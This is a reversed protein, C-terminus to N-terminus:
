TKIAPHELVRWEQLYRKPRALSRHSAAPAQILCLDAHLALPLIQISGDVLCAVRNIKQQGGLAVHCGGHTEKFLGHTVIGDWFFDRHILATGVFRGNVRDDLVLFYGDDDPLDFVEIVDDLLVMTGDFANGSRHETKFRKSRGSVDQSTDFEHVQNPLSLEM